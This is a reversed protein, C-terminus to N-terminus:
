KAKGKGREPRPPLENGPLLKEHIILRWQAVPAAIEDEGETTEQDVLEKPPVAIDVRAEYPTDNTVTAVWVSYGNGVDQVEPKEPLKLGYGIKLRKALDAWIQEVANTMGFTEVECYTHSGDDYPSWNLGEEGPYGKAKLAAICEKRNKNRLEAVTARWAQMAKNFLYEDKREQQLAYPEWVGCGENAKDALSLMCSWVGDPRKGVACMVRLRLYEAIWADPFTHIKLPNFTEAFIAKMKEQAALADERTKWYSSFYAEGTEYAGTDENFHSFFGKSGKFGLHAADKKWATLWPGVEDEGYDKPLEKLTSGPLTMELANLIAIENTSLAYDEVVEFLRIPVWNTVVCDITFYSQMKSIDNGRYGLKEAESKKACGAVLACAAIIVIGVKKM